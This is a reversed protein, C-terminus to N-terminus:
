EPGPGPPLWSPLLGWLAQLMGPFGVPIIFLESPAWHAFPSLAPLASSERVVGGTDQVSDPLCFTQQESTMESLPVLLSGPCYRDWLHGTLHVCRLEATVNQQTPDLCCLCKVHM